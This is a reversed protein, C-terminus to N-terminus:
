PGGESALVAINQAVGSLNPNARRAAAYASSAEALAGRLQALAGFSAHAEAFDPFHRRAVDYAHQADLWRSQRRRENGVDYEVVAAVELPDLARAYEHAGGAPLPFRRAYWADPEEAGAHLLELDHWASQEYLRVFFHGPVMTGVMRWGLREALALYLSGLGVCSGRRQELVSPLLVFRLSTDSVERAFGHRQFVVERLAARRTAGPRASQERVEDALADLAALSSDPSPAPEHWEAPMALLERLLPGPEPPDRRPACAAISSALVFLVLLEPFAARM